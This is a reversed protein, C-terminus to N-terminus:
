LTKLYELLAQKDEGGLTLGYAHGGNGNGPLRTDFLFLRRGDLSLARDSRFGVRRPDYQDDGRYFTVPRAGPSELLDALTPVSGNHLYPARAWLGDLPMNAYGQTKRFHKFRWWQGAGLTNQNAILEETFSDLRAPDTGILGIPVVQGVYAGQWDHCAACHERYLPEGRAALARDIVFPYGPIPLQGQAPRPEARARRIAAAREQASPQARPDPSGVWAAVRLMRPMDLSVPTAGAGLSASINREFVSTNNGDWHLQMGERPAQNWLSPFDATGITGDDPFRFVILKYPNFTDVRGPGFAPVRALFDGLQARRELLSARLLPISRRLLWGEVLGPDFAQEVYTMLNDATFRPSAAAALLFRFYGGLDVTNAPMGMIVLRQGNGELDPARGGYLREPDLDTTVRLTSVHCIACNMGIREVGALRLSFGVPRAPEPGNAEVLFGFQRYGDLGDREQRAIARFAQPDPLLEPFAQPLVRWIPYPIGGELDSGISGYKFHQADDSFDQPHDAIFRWYVLSGVLLVLLLILWGRRARRRLRYAEVPTPPHHINM